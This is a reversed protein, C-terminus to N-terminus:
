VIDVNQSMGVIQKRAHIPHNLIARISIEDILSRLVSASPKSVRPLEFIQSIADFFILCKNDYNEFQGFDKGLNSDSIQFM